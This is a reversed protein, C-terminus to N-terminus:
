NKFYKNMMKAFLFYDIPKSIYDTCGYSIFDEKDGPMVYATMAIIPINKYNELMRAEKTVYLGNYGRGLNIDTIIIDYQNAKIKEIADLAKMSTEIKCTGKLFMEILKLSSYDDDIILISKNTKEISISERSKALHSEMSKDVNRLNNRILPLKVTFTSGKDIISEVNVSGGLLFAFKRTLALGLGTGDYSRNIGESVQRFQNFIVEFHIEDIGIGTDTVKIVIMETNEIIENEVEISISGRNTFKFANNIINSLISNIAQRNSLIILDDSYSDFSVILDKAISTDAFLNIYETICELLDIEEIIFKTAGSEIQSIDLILNLTETLRNASLNILQSIENVDSIDDIISLLKSFGLIGNMPTRLEHSMNALFNSKLRNMEEATEKAKILIQENQKQVTLDTFASILHLEDNLKIIHSSHITEIITGDLKLLKFENNDVKGYEFINKVLIERNTKEAYFDIVNRGIISESITGFLSNLSANTKVIVADNLSTILLPVPATEFIENLMKENEILLTEAKKRKTIDTIMGITGDYVGESFIPSTSIIAWVIKGSKAIFSMDHHESLGLKRRKINEVAIMQNKENMFDFVSKGIMEAISYELMNAMTQNVYITVDNKDIVWIGENSTEILQQYKLETKSKEREAQLIETIDRFSAIVGNAIGNSEIYLPETNISIWTILGNPKKIGMVQNSLSKGTKLTIVTPHSEELYDSGDEHISKWIPNHSTKEIIQKLTYGLIKLACVNADLIALNEDLIVIGEQLSKIVTKYKNESFFLEEKAKLRDSIDNAFTLLVDNNKYKGKFTWVDKPFITGDKKLGWFLYKQPIGQFALECDAVIKAIDNRGKASLFEPTKGIFYEKEYGYMDVAAQNVEIFTLDRNQIYIAQQATNILQSYNNEILKSEEEAEKRATIDVLYGLYNTIDGNENRIITSYDQVWCISGNKAIVRYPKHEFFSVQPVSNQVVENTVRVLDEPVIFNSYLFQPSQMEEPTFGFIKEVNPSVYKVPWNSENKWKFVVVNGQTFLNRELRLSKLTKNLEEQAEKRAAIDRYKMVVYELDGNADLIPTLSIALWIKNTNTTIFDSNSQLNNLDIEGEWYHRIKNKFVNKIDDENGSLKLNTDLINYKGEINQYTVGFLKFLSDNIKICMGNKDFIQISTSSQLFIQDFIYEEKKIYNENSKSEFLEQKLKIILENKEFLEKKLQTVELSYDM